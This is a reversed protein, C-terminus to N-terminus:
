FQPWFYVVMIMDYFSPYKLFPFHCLRMNFFLIKWSLVTLSKGLVHKVKSWHSDLHASLLPSAPEPGLPQFGSIPHACCHPPVM